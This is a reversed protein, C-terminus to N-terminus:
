GSATALQETSRAPWIWSLIMGITWLGAAVVVTLVVWFKWYSNFTNEWGTQIRHALNVNLAAPSILRSGLQVFL